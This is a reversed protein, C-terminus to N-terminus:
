RLYVKNQPNTIAVNLEEIMGPMAATLHKCHESMNDDLLESKDLKSQKIEERTKKEFGRKKLDALHTSFNKEEGQIKDDTDEFGKILENLDPMPVEFEQGDDSEDDTLCDVEL